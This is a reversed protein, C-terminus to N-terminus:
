EIQIRLARPRRVARRDVIRRRQNSVIQIVARFTLLLHQGREYREKFSLPEEAGAVGASLGLFLGALALSLLVGASRRM